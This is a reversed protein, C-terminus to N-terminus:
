FLMTFSLVQIPINFKEPSPFVQYCSAKWQINGL